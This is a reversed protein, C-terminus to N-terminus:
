KRILSGRINISCDKFNGLNNEVFTYVANADREISDVKNKIRRLDAEYNRTSNEVYNVNSLVYNDNPYNQSYLADRIGVINNISKDLKNRLDWVNNDNYKIVTGNGFKNRINNVLSCLFDGYKTLENALDYYKQSDYKVNKVFLEAATGTWEQTETPMKQIRNFFLDLKNKLDKTQALIDSGTNYVKVTNLEIKM